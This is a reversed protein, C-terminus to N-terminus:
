PQIVTRLFPDVPGNEAALITRERFINFVSLILIGTSPVYM